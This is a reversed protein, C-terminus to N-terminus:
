IGFQIILKNKDGHNSNNNFACGFLELMICLNVGFGKSGFPGPDM